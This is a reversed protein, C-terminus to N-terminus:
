SAAQDRSRAPQRRPARLREVVARDAALPVAVRVHSDGRNRDGGLPIFIEVKGMRHEICSKLYQYLLLCSAAGDAIEDCIKEGSRKEWKARNNQSNKKDRGVDDPKKLAAMM